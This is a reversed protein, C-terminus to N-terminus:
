KKSQDRVVEGGGVAEASERALESPWEPNSFFDPRETQYRRYRRLFEVNLPSGAVGLDPFRAVARKEAAELDNPEVEREPLQSIVSKRLFRPTPSAAVAAPTARVPAKDVQHLTTGAWAWWLGVPALFGVMGLALVGVWALSAKPVEQPVGCATCCFPNARNAVAIALWGPFWLGCTFFSILFHLGHNVGVREFRRAEGCSRCPIEVHEIAMGKGMARGGGGAFGWFEGQAWIGLGSPQRFNVGPVVRLPVRGFEGAEEMDLNWFFM